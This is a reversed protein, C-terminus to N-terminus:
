ECAIGDGDRDLKGALAKAIEGHVEDAPRARAFDDRTWEPNDDDFNAPSKKSM